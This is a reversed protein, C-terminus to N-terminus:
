EGMGSRGEGGSVENLCHLLADEGLSAYATVVVISQQFAGHAAILWDARTEAYIAIKEKRDHGAALLGGGFAAARHYASGYSEWEYEGQTVKEMAKGTEPNVETEKSIFKRTGLFPQTYFRNCCIEFLAAVTVAGDRPIELLNKDRSAHQFTVGPGAIHSAVKGYLM